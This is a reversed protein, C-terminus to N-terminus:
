LCLPAHTKTDTTLIDLFRRRCLPTLDMKLQKQFITGPNDTGSQRRYFSIASKAVLNVGIGAVAEIFNIM